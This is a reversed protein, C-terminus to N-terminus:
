TSVYERVELTSNERGPRGSSVTKESINNIMDCFDCMYKVCMYV